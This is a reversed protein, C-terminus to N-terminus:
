LAISFVVRRGQRYDPDVYAFGGLLRVLLQCNCIEVRASVDSGDNDAPPNMYRQNEDPTPLDGTDSVAFTLKGKEGGETVNLYVLRERTDGCRAAVRVAAHRLLIELVKRLATRNTAVAYYDPVDSRYLVEVDQSDAMDRCLENVLVRDQRPLRDAMSYYSLDILRDVHGQVRGYGEGLWDLADRREGSSMSPSHEDRRLLASFGRVSHLTTRMEHMAHLLLKWYKMEETKLM